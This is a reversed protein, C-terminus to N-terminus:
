NKETNYVICRVVFVFSIEPNLALVALTDAPVPMLTLSPVTEISPVTTAVSVSSDVCNAELALEIETEAFVVAIVVFVVAIVAFVVLMAVLVELMVALAYLMVCFMPLMVPRPCAIPERIVFVFPFSPLMAVFVDLM